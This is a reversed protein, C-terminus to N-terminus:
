QMGFLSQQEYEQIRQLVLPAKQLFAQIRSSDCIWNEVEEAELILPMREHVPSVSQNAQTTLVVFRVEDQIM